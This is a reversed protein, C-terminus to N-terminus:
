PRAPEVLCVANGATGLLREESSCNKCTKFCILAIKGIRNMDELLGSNFAIM